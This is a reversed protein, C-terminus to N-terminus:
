IDRLALWRGGDQIDILKNKFEVILQIVNKLLEFNEGNCQLVPISFSILNTSFSDTSM